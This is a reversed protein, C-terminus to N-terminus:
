PCANLDNKLYTEISKGPVNKCNGRIYMSSYNGGKLSGMTPCSCTMDPLALSNLQTLNKISPSLHAFTDTNGFQISKLKPNSNFAEDDVFSIQNRTLDLYELETLGTFDEKQIRRIRGNFDLSTIKPWHSLLTRNVYNINGWIQLGTLPASYFASPDLADTTPCNLIALSTTSNQPCGQLTTDHVNRCGSVTFTELNLNCLPESFDNFASNWIDLRKLATNQGKVFTGPEFATETMGYLWLFDITNQQYKMVKKLLDYSGLSITTVVNNYFMQKIVQDPIGTTILPNGEIRLEQLGHFRTFEYSISTLNNDRLNLKLNVNELGLFAGNHIQSIKNRDFGISVDFYADFSTFNRFVGFPIETLKNDTLEVDLRNFFSTSVFGPPLDFVPITQLNRRSCDIRSNYPCTCVDFCQNNATLFGTTVQLCGLFVWAVGVQLMYIRQTILSIRLRKVDVNKTDWIVCFEFDASIIAVCIRM